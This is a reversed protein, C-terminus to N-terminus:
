LPNEESIGALADLRARQRHYDVLTDLFEFRTDIHSRQADLVDLLSFKGFRYGKNVATFASASAPLVNDELRTLQEALTSVRAHLSTVEQQLSQRSAIAQARAEDLRAMAALQAGQNRNFLPIPLSVGLQWASEGTQEYQRQGVSVTVDPVRNAQELDRQSTRAAIRADAERLLPNDALRALTQDLAPLPTRTPLADSQPDPQSDAAGSDSGLLGALRQSATILDAQAQGARRLLGASAVDLRSLAVPSVKGARIQTMVGDRTAATAQRLENALAVRQRAALVEAWATRVDALLLRQQLSLRASVATAEHRAVESRAEHQGALELRQSLQWTTSPGDLGTLRSNGMNERTVSIEPNHLLELQRADGRAADLTARAGALLPNDRLARQEAEALTLAHALPTLGLLSAALLWRAAPRAPPTAM